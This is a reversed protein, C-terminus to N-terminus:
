YRAVSSKICSYPILWLALIMLTNWVTWANHVNRMKIKKIGSLAVWLSGQPSDSLVERFRLSIQIKLITSFATGPEFTDCEYVLDFWFMVLLLFVKENVINIVQKNSKEYFTFNTKLIWILCIDYPGHLTKPCIHLAFTWILRRMRATQVPCESDALITLRYKLIYSHLAFARINGQAHVPHDSDRCNAWIRLCKKAQRPGYQIAQESRIIISNSDNIAGEKLENIINSRFM